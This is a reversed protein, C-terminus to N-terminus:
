GGITDDDEGEGGFNEEMLEAENDTKNDGQRWWRQAVVLSGGGGSVGRWRWHQWRQWAAAAVVLSGNDGNDVNCSINSLSFSNQLIVSM